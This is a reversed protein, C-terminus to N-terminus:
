WINYLMLLKPIYLKEHSLIGIVQSVSTGMDLNSWKMIM